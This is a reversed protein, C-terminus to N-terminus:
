ITRTCISDGDFDALLPKFGADALPQAIPYLGHATPAVVADGRALVMRASSVAVTADADFTAEARALEQVHLTGFLLFLTAGLGASAGPLRRLSVCVLAAIGLAVVIGYRPVMSPQIVMSFAVLVLPMLIYSVLIWVGATLSRASDMGKASVEQSDPPGS